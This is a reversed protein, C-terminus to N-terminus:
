IKIGCKELMEAIEAKKEIACIRKMKKIRYKVGNDSLYVEALSEYDVHALRMKNTFM